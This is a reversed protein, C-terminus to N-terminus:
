WHPPTTFSTPAPTVSRTTPWVTTATIVCPDCAASTATGAIIVQLTGSPRSTRAAAQTGIGNPVASSQRKSNPRRFAALGREDVGTRAAHADGGDL